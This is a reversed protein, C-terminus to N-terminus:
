CGQECATSYISVIAFHSRYGQRRMIVGTKRDFQIDGYVDADKPNAYAYIWKCAPCDKPPKVARYKPHQNCTLTLSVSMKINGEGQAM